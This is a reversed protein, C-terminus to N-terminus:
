AIRTRKIQNPITIDVYGDIVRVPNIDDVYEDLSLPFLLQQKRNLGEKYNSSM